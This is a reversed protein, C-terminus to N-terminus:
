LGLLEKHNWPNISNIMEQEKKVSEQILHVREDNNKPANALDDVELVFDLYLRGIANKCASCFSAKKQLKCEKCRIM